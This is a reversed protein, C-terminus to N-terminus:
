SLLPIRPRCYRYVRSYICSRPLSNQSSSCSSVRRSTRPAVRFSITIKDYFSERGDTAFYEGVSFLLSYSGASLNQGDGLMDRVRGDSDTVESAIVENERELKVTIGAAPKGLSTDLVHTSITSM